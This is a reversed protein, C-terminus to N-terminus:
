QGQYNAFTMLQDIVFSLKTAYYYHFNKRQGTPIIIQIRVANAQFALRVECRTTVGFYRWYDTPVSHLQLDPVRLNLVTGAKKFLPNYKIQQVSPVPAAPLNKNDTM